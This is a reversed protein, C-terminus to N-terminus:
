IYRLLKLKYRILDMLKMIVKLNVNLKCTIVVLTAVKCLSCNILPITCQQTYVRLCPLAMTHHDALTRIPRIKTIERQRLIKMVVSTLGLKLETWRYIAAAFAKGPIAQTLIQFVFIVVININYDFILWNSMKSMNISEVHGRDQYGM